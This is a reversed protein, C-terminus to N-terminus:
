DIGDLSNELDSLNAVEELLEDTDSDSSIEVQEVVYINGEKEEAM